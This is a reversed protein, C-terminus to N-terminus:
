NQNIEMEIQDSINKGFVQTQGNDIVEIQQTGDIPNQQIIKLAAGPFVGISKLFVLLDQSQNTIMRVIGKEGPQMNALLTLSRSDNMNLDRDPIPHGHPDFAPENMIQAIQEMFFPSVVHELEEAEAHIKELPYDLIQFLFQEILRHRRIIQLAAKEGEATLTVGYHKRYNVLDPHTESLKQLMNTVSASRIDLAEALAVTSTPQSDRTQQYINKIYDQVSRSLADDFEPM